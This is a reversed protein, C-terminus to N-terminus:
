VRRRRGAYHGYIRPLGTRFSRVVPKEIWLHFVIAAVQCIGVMLIFYVVPPMGIRSDMNVALKTLVSLVPYHVLYLSYSASGLLDLMRNSRNWDKNSVLGYILLAGGAGYLYTAPIIQLPHALQYFWGSLFVIAGITATTRGYWVYGNAYLRAVLMGFLFLANNPSVIIRLYAPTLSPAYLLAGAAAWLILLALGISRKWLFIAFILYFLIEHRLTWEVALIKEGEELGLPLILFASVLEYPTVATGFLGLAFIPILTALVLWLPPYLRCFRKFAFTAIAGVDRERDRHHAFYIVFGSLVFFLQVGSNGAALLPAVDTGFYKPMM